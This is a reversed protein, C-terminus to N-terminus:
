SRYFIINIFISFFIGPTVENALFLISELYQMFLPNFGML